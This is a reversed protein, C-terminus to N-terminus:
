LDNRSRHPANLTHSLDLVTELRQSVIASQLLPFFDREEYLQNKLSAFQSSFSTACRLTSRKMSLKHKFSFSLINNIISSVYLSFFSVLCITHAFKVIMTFFG